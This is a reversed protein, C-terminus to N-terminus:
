YKLKRKFQRMKRLFRLINFKRQNWLFSREIQRIDRLFHRTDRKMKRRLDDVERLFRYIEPHFEKSPQIPRTPLDQTQFLEEYTKKILEYVGLVRKDYYSTFKGKIQKHNVLFIYYEIHDLLIECRRDLEKKIDSLNSESKIFNDPKAL